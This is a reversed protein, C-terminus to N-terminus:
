MAILLQFCVYITNIHVISIYIFINTLDLNMNM